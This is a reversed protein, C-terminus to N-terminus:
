RLPLGTRSLRHFKPAVGFRKKFELSFYAPNGYGLSAAIEKISLSTEHLLRAARGMRQAIIFEIPSTGLQRSFLRYLSPVSIGVHSAIEPATLRRDLNQQILELAKGLRGISGRSPLALSLELLLEYALVSLRRAFDPPRRDLLGFAHKIMRAVAIRNRPVLHDVEALGFARLTPELLPGDMELFRRHSVGSPGTRVLNDCGRRSMFVGGAGVIYSRGDQVFLTDGHTVLETIFLTSGKRQWFNDPGYRICGVYFIRLPPLYHDGSYDHYRTNHRTGPMGWSTGKPEAPHARSDTAPM